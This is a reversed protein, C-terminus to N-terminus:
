DLIGEVERIISQVAGTKADVRVLLNGIVAYNSGPVAPGLGYRGPQTIIHVQAAPLVDGVKVAGQAALAPDAALLMAAILASRISSPFSM